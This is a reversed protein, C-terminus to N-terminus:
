PQRRFPYLNLSSRRTEIEATNGGDSMMGFEVEKALPQIAAMGALHVVEM